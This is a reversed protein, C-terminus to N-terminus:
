GGAHLRCHPTRVSKRSELLHRREREMAEMQKHLAMVRQKSARDARKKLKSVKM